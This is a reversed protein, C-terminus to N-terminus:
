EGPKWTEIVLVSHYFADKNVQNHESRIRTQRTNGSKILSTSKLTPANSPCPQTLTHTAVLVTTHKTHIVRVLHTLPDRDSDEEEALTDISGKKV